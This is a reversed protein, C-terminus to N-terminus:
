ISTLINLSARSCSTETIPTEGMGDKVTKLIVKSYQTSILIDAPFISTIVM